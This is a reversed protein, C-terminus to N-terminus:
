REEGQCIYEFSEGGEIWSSRTGADIIWGTTWPATYAGPDDITAEYVLTRLNPRTFREVMHLRETTPNTGSIWQRENIGVTDVVLTDGEWRGISHGLFTPRLTALPPHPRGDMYVVRWSHPGAVNLIFIQDLEPVEVIEFGPASYFGPGTTPICHVAPPYLDVRSQRYAALARAWPQFPIEDPPTATPLNRQGGPRVEWYGRADPASGLNPHGDLWRPTPEVADQARSPAPAVLAALAVALLLHRPM